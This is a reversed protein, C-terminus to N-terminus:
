VSCEGVDQISERDAAAEALVLLESLEIAIAASSAEGLALARGEVAAAERFRGGEPDERVQGFVVADSLGFPHDANVAVGDNPACAGGFLVGVVSM